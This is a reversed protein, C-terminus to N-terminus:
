LLLACDRRFLPLVSVSNDFAAASPLRPELEPATELLPSSRHRAWFLTDRITDRSPAQAPHFPVPQSESDDCCRASCGSHSSCTCAPACSPACGALPTRSPLLVAVTLLLILWARM